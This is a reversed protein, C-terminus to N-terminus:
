APLSVGSMVLNNHLRYNGSLSFGTTFIPSITKLFEAQFTQQTADIHIHVDQFGAWQHTLPYQLKYVSEKSSFIISVFMEQQSQPLTHLWELEQPTCTYRWTDPKLRGVREIDLGLSQIENKSAIAAGCFQDTHSISGCYKEPWLPERKSGALIPFDHIDFENLLQRAALRGAKFERVRKDVAKEVLKAEEPLLDGSVNQPNNSCTKVCEPFLQYLM